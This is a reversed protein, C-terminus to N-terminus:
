DPLQWERVTGDRSASLAFNGEAAFAVQHVVQWHGRCVCLQRGSTLDWLRVSLDKSGSLARCGDPSLSLSAVQHRHGECRVLERGTQLDWLRVSGDKGGSLLRSSDDSLVACTFGNVPLDAVPLVARTRPDVLQVQGHQEVVLLQRGGRALAIAIQQSRVQRVEIGKPGDALHLWLIGGFGVLVTALNPLVFRWSVLTTLRRSWSSVVRIYIVLAVMGLVFGATEALELGLRGGLLQGLQGFPIALLVGAGWASALCIVPLWLLVILVGIVVILWCMVVAMRVPGLFWRSLRDDGAHKDALWRNGCFGVLGATLVVVVATLGIEFHLVRVQPFRYEAIGPIVTPYMLGMCGAFMSLQALLAVRFAQALAAVIVGIFAGAAGALLGTNPEILEHLRITPLWAVLFGFAAAFLVGILSPQVTRREEDVVSAWAQSLQWRTLRRRTSPAASWLARWRRRKIQRGMDRVPSFFFGLAVLPAVVAFICSAIDAAIKPLVQYVLASFGFTGGLAIIGSFCLSTQTSFPLERYARAPHRWARALWVRIPETPEGAAVANRVAQRRLLYLALGIWLVSLAGPAIAAGVGLVQGVAILTVAISLAWLGVVTRQRQVWKVVKEWAGVPRALITEGRLWRELDEALAEASGYRKAPEKALCKLCITELDRDIAPRVQRPPAPEKDIVQLVVDMPTAGTFPPAGTLLEYLIAGLSYVDAATTLGKRGAAQEPAMYAPTGVIAGSQSLKLDGELRKALGFDTIM